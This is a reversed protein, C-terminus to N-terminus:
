PTLGKNVQRVTDALRDSVDATQHQCGSVLSILLKRCPSAVHRLTMAGTTSSSMTPFTELCVADTVRAHDGCQSLARLLM